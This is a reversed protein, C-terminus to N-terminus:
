SKELRETNVLNLGLKQICDIAVDKPNAISGSLRPASGHPLLDTDMYGPSIWELLLQDSVSKLSKFLGKMAWKGAAYSPGLRDGTESEAIESGLYLFTKLDLFDGPQKLAWLLKAPFLFNLKISWEHDKWNKSAFHGFPGGGAVYMVQTPNFSKLTQIFHNFELEDSVLKTFDFSKFTYNSSFHYTESNKRSLGLVKVCEFGLGKHSGLVAVRAESTPLISLRASEDTLIFDSM